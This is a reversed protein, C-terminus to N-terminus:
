PLVTVAARWCVLAVPTRYPRFREGEAGLRKPTPLADMSHIRAWGRRVGLDDVPWVDLRRLEFILFMEATWRGIGRVAVLRALIEDDRLRSLRELPLTGDIAKSALDRISATKARSLGTALMADERMALVHEPTLEGVADLFRGHIAAAARGALQQYAIARVLAAFPDGIRLRWSPRGLREISAALAPDRTAVEATAAALSIRSM